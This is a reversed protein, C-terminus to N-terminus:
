GALAITLLFASDELAEVDHPIVRGLTLVHGAPLDVAQGAARVTLRGEITHITIRGPAHHEELRAGPRLAILVARMEADKILTRAHRGSGRWPEQTRDAPPLRRAVPVVVLALFFIGGVWIIASLIHVLVSLQYM